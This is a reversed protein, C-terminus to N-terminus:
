SSLLRPVMGRLTIDMTIAFDVTIKGNGDVFNGHPILKMILRRSNASRTDMRNTTGVQMDHEFSSTAAFASGRQQVDVRVSASCGGIAAPQIGAFSKIV